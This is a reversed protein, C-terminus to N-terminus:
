SGWPNKSPRDSKGVRELDAAFGPDPAGARRWSTLAERLTATSKGPVPLETASIRGEMTRM